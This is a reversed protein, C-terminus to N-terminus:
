CMKHGVTFWAKQSLNSISYRVPVKESVCLLVKLPVGKYFIWTTKYTELSKMGIYNGICSTATFLTILLIM